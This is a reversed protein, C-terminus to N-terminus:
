TRFKRTVGDVATNYATSYKQFSPLFGQMAIYNRTKTTCLGLLESINHQSVTYIFLYYFESSNYIMRTTCFYDYVLRVNQFMLNEGLKQM